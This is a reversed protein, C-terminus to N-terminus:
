GLWHIERLVEMRYALHAVLKARFAAWGAAGEDVEVDTEFMFGLKSSDYQEGGGRQAGLSRSAHVRAILLRLHEADADHQGGAEHWNGQPIIPM